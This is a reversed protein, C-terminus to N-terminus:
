RTKIKNDQPTNVFLSTAPCYVKHEMNSGTYYYLTSLVINFSKKLHLMTFLYKVAAKIINLIKTIMMPKCISTRHFPIKDHPIAKIQKIKAVYKM